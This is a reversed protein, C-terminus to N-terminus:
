QVSRVRRVNMQYKSGDDCIFIIEDNDKNEVKTLTKGILEKIEAMKKTKYTFLTKRKETITFYLTGAVM